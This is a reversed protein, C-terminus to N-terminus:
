GTILKLVDTKTVVGQPRHNGDLIFVANCREELLAEVVPRLTVGAAVCSVKPGKELEGGKVGWDNLSEFRPVLGGPMGERIAHLMVYQYVPVALVGFEETNLTTFDSASLSAVLVGGNRQDIVGLNSVNYSMMTAFANMAPMDCPVCVVRKRGLGLSELSSDFFDEYKHRNQYVLQLVDSQSMVATVQLKRGLGERSLNGSGVTTENSSEQRAAPASVPDGSRESWYGASVREETFADSQNDDPSPPPSEWGEVCDDDVYDFIGVRHCVQKGKVQRGGANAFRMLEYLSVRENNQYVLEGDDMPWVADLTENELRRGAIRLRYVREEPRTARVDVFDLVLALVDRCDVFGLFANTRRDFVPASKIGVKGLMHLAESVATDSEFSVVQCPPKRRLCEGLTISRLLSVVGGVAETM